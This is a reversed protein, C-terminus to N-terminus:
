IMSLLSFSFANGKLDSVPCPNGSKGSKNLTTNSTRAASVLCPFSIFCIWIPFCLACNDSNASSLINHIYFVLSVVLFSDSNMM